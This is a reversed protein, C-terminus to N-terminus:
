ELVGLYLLRLAMLTLFVRMIPVVRKASIRELFFRGTMTGLHGTLIMLMILGWWSNFAFGFFGFLLIKYLQQFSIMAALTAVLGRRDDFFDKVVIYVIPAVGGVIMALFATISGLFAISQRSKALRFFPLWASYLIFLGMAIRLWHSPVAFALRAGLIGGLLSGLSFWLVLKWDAFGRLTSLRSVNSGLQVAGHIAIVAAAPMLNAMIALLAVGGGIGFAATIASTFFSCVVLASFASVSLLEPIQFFIEM